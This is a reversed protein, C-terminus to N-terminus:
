KSTSARGAGPECMKDGRPAPRPNHKSPCGGLLGARSPVHDLDPVFRGALDKEFGFVVGQGTGIEIVELEFTRVQPTL